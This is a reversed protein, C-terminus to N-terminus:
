TQSDQSVETSINLRGKEKGLDTLSSSTKGRRKDAAANCDSSFGALGPGRPHRWPFWAQVVRDGPMLVSDKGMGHPILTVGIVGPGGPPDPDCGKLLAYGNPDSVYGEVQAHAGTSILSVGRSRSRSALRAEGAYLPQM